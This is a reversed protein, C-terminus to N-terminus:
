CEEKVCTAIVSKMSIVKSLDSYPIEIEQAGFNYPAVQYEDFTILLNDSQLNWNKFNTAKPKTGQDIMWKDKLTENLKKNSYDALMRLYNPKFLENLSITKATTLDFTITEYKHYPHARGAQFGETNLRVSILTHKKPELVTVDYDINLTNKKVDDPLTDMHPMDAKVYKKFQEVETKIRQEILQNFQEAGKPLKEGVIEPYAASITYPIEPKEENLKKPEITLDDNIVAIDEEANEPQVPEAIVSSFLFLTMLLLIIKRM